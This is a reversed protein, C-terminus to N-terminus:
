LGWTREAASGRNHKRHVNGFGFNMIPQATLVFKISHDMEVMYKVDYEHASTNFRMSYIRIAGLAFDFAEKNSTPKNQLEYEIVSKLEATYKFEISGAVKNQTPPNEQFYQDLRTFLSKASDHYIETATPFM